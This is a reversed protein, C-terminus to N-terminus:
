RSKLENLIQEVVTTRKTDLKFPFTALFQCVRLLVKVLM